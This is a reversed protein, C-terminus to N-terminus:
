VSHEPTLNHRHMFDSMDAGVELIEEAIEGLGDVSIPEDILRLRGRVRVGQCRATNPDDTVAWLSHVVFNRQGYAAQIRGIIKLFAKGESEPEFGGENAFTTLLYLKAQLGLNASLVMGTSLNIKQHELIAFELM